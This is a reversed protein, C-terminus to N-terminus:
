NAPAGGSYRRLQAQRWAEAAAVQNFTFMHLGEVVSEPAVLAHGVRDLWRSPSYGGPTGMRAMWRLHKSIFQTSEGIGIKTAMGVLKSRDVPGALGVHLPLTVGRARVREIWRRLVAPDFCLNSVIYDAYRRKDWMAQITVDDAIAPHSQPYGTIGVRRFPRGLTVLLSLVPLASDFRGVPLDADGAPLFVDDIGAGQLRAVIEKLHEDDVILRASVHPVVRYGEGALLESLALTAELGKTPSATVTVTVERPVSALVAEEVSPAPIVEYAVRELLGAAVVSRLGGRPIM